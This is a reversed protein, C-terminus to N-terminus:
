TEVPAFVEAPVRIAPLELESTHDLNQLAQKPISSKFTAPASVEPSVGSWAQVSQWLVAVNLGGGGGGM